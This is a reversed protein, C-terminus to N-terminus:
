RQNPVATNARKGDIGHDFRSEVDTQEVHMMKMEESIENQADGM